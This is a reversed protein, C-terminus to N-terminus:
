VSDWEKMSDGFAFTFVKSLVAQTKTMITGQYLSVDRVDVGSAVEETCKYVAMDSSLEDGFEQIAETITSGSGFIVVPNITAVAYKTTM